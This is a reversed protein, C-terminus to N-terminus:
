FFSYGLLFLPPNSYQGILFLPYNTVCQAVCYLTKQLCKKIVKCITLQECLVPSQDISLSNLYVKNLDDFCCSQLNFNLISFKKEFYDHNLREM